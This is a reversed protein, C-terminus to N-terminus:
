PQQEGDDLDLGSFRNGYETPTLVDGTRAQELKIAMDIMTRAEDATLGEFVVVIDGSEPRRLIETKIKDPLLGIVTTLVNLMSAM